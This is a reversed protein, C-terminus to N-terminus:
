DEQQDFIGSFDDSVVEDSYDDEDDGEDGEALRDLSTDEDDWMRPHKHLLATIIAQRALDPHNEELAELLGQAKPCSAAGFV